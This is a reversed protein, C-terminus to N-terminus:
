METPPSAAQGHAGTTPAPPALHSKRRHSWIFPRPGPEQSPPSEGADKEAQRPPSPPLRPGSPANVEGHSYASVMGDMKECKTQINKGWSQSPFPLAVRHGIIEAAVTVCRQGRWRRSEGIDVVNEWIRGRRSRMM